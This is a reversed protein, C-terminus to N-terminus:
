EQRIGHARKKEDIMRQLKSETTGRGKKEKELQEQLIRGL